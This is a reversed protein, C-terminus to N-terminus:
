HGPSRSHSTHTVSLPSPTRASMLMTAADVIRAANPLVEVERRRDYPITREVCVRQFAPQLGAELAVAALEGALGFHKYDEDAVLLRQTKALEACVTDVDLPSVSRLDVVGADIGLEALREAAELCRHVAVGVGVMTLDRGARLVQAAPIPISGWTDPVVGRAGAEPVQYDLGTRGGDALYDLWYDALLKHEMFLVPAEDEIASLMLAGADAPNSPVVVKMGPVQALLGWLAQEHQGGDGYGGGCAIRVVMPVKWRGGSFAEVKAAHNILADAAVAVFDVMMIEVIPRLGGMAATVGAGLFASESIPTPRVRSEGFRAFLNMRIAHVDEGFVVIRPDSAMAQMLADEIAQAYTMERM